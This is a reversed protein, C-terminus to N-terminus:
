AAEGHQEPEAVPLEDLHNLRIERDLYFTDFLDHAHESRDRAARKSLTVKFRAEADPCAREQKRTVGAGCEPCRSDACMYPWWNVDCASCHYTQAM